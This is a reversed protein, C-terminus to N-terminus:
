AAALRAIRRAMMDSAAIHVLACASWSAAEWDRAIRRYRDLWAFTREVVWRRPLVQFGRQEPSKRVIEVTINHTTKAWDILKGQYRTDGWIHRLRPAHAAAEDLVDPAATPDQVNAPTVVVGILLGETDVVIHRKRGHVKKGPDNGVVGCGPGSALSQSDIVGASPSLERGLEARLMTRITDTLAQWIGNDAWTRFRWYVTQWPPFTKPLLRWAIGGRLVYAIANYVERDSHARPRGRTTQRRLVPGILEWAIDDIDTPYSLETPKGYSRMSPTPM